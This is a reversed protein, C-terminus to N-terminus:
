LTVLESVSPPNLKSAPGQRPHSGLVVASLDSNAGGVTVTLRVFVFDNKIDLDEGWFEIIAQKNDDGDAKTLQTIAAGELDKVEAGADDKAQEIKADITAAAGLAGVCILAQIAQFDAMSLWGTSHDGVATADPEIVALLAVSASPPLTKQAM